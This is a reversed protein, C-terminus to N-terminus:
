EGDAERLDLSILADIVGDVGHVELPGLGIFSLLLAAAAVGGGISISAVQCFSSAM